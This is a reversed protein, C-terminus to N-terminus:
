PRVGLKAEIEQANPERREAKFTDSVMRRKLMDWTNRKDELALAQREQEKRAERPRPRHGGNLPTHPSKHGDTRGDTRPDSGTRSTAVVDGSRRARAAKRDRDNKRLHAAIDEGNEDRWGHYFLVGKRDDVFGATKMAKALTGADGKWEAVEELIFPGGIMGDTSDNSALWSMVRAPYVDAKSDQLSAKLNQTKRHRPLGVRFKFWDM